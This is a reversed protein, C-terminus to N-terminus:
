KTRGSMLGDKEAKTATDLYKQILRLSVSLEQYAATTAALDFSFAPPVAQELKGRAESMM